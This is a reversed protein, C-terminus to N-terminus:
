VGLRIRLVRVYWGNVTDCVSTIFGKTKMLGSSSHEYTSSIVLDGFDSRAAELLRAAGLDGFDSVVHRTSDEFVHRSQNILQNFYMLIRLGASQPLTRIDRTSM